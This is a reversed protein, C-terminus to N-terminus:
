PKLRNLQERANDLDRGYEALYREREESTWEKDTFATSPYAASTHVVGALRPMMARDPFRDAYLLFGDADRLRL